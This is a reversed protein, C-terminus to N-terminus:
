LWKSLKKCNYMSSHTCTCIRCNFHAHIFLAAQLLSLGLACRVWALILKTIYIVQLTYVIYLSNSTMVHPGFRRLGNINVFCTKFNSGLQMTPTLMQPSHLDVFVHIIPIHILMCQPVRLNNLQLNAM